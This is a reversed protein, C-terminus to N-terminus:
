AATRRRLAPRPDVRHGRPRHGVDGPSRAAAVSGLGEVGRPLEGREYKDPEDTTVLVRSVGSAQLMRVVRSVSLQGQPDQGGTMAVTGNYLLKYTINM